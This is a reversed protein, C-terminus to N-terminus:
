GGVVAIYNTSTTPDIPDVGPEYSQILAWRHTDRQVPLSNDTWTFGIVTIPVNARANPLIGENYINGPLTVSVTGSATSIVNIYTATSLVGKPFYGVVSSSAFNADGNRDFAIADAVVTQYDLHFTWGAISKGFDYVVTKQTSPFVQQTQLNDSGGIYQYFSLTTAM